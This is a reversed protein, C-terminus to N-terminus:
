GNVVQLINAPRNRSTLESIVQRLETLNYTFEKEWSVGTDLDEFHAFCKGDSIVEIELDLNFCSWEFQINGDATPFVDPVPTKEEFLQYALMCAGLLANKTPCLAGYSDWNDSLETFGYVKRSTELIVTPLVADVSTAERTGDSKVLQLNTM